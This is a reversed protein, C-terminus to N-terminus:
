VGSHPTNRPSVMSRQNYDEKPDQIKTDVPDDIWSIYTAGTLKHQILFEFKERDLSEIVPIWAQKKGFLQALRENDDSDNMKFAIKWDSESHMNRQAGPPRQKGMVCTIGQSRGEKLYMGLVRKLDPDLLELSNFEDFVVVINANPKWLNDLLERFKEAQYQDRARGTANTRPWFVMQPYKKIDEWNDSTPWEMEKATSDDPKNVLYVIHSKRRRVREAMIQTLFFGKGSGTPGLIELHEPQIKGRPRGWIKIFEPGLQSWPVREVDPIQNTSARRQTPLFTM